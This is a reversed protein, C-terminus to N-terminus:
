SRVVVFGGGASSAVAVPVALSHTEPLRTTVPSLQAAPQDPTPGDTHHGNAPRHAAHTPHEPADPPHTM